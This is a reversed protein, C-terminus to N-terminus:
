EFEAKFDLPVGRGFKDVLQEIVQIQAAPVGVFHLGIRFGGVTEKCYVVKSNLTLQNITIKAKTEVLIDTPHVFGVGTNSLDVLGSEKKGEPQLFEIRDSRKQVM